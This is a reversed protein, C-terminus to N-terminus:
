GLCLLLLWTHPVVCKGGGNFFGLLLFPSLSCRGWGTSGSQRCLPPVAHSRCGLAPLLPLHWRSQEGVVVAISCPAGSWIGRSPQLEWRVWTPPPVQLLPSARASSVAEPSHQPEAGRRLVWGPLPAAPHAPPKALASRPSGGRTASPGAPHAPKAQSGRGSGAARLLVPPPRELWAGPERYCCLACHSRTPSWPSRGLSLIAPEQALVPSGSGLCWRGPAGVGSAGRVLVRVGGAAGLSGGGPCPVEPAAGAGPCRQGEWVRGWPSGCGGPVRSGRPEACPSRVVGEM